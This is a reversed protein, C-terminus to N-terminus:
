HIKLEKRLQAEAELWNERDHGPACGKARWITRAREAIMEHTLQPPAATATATGSSSSSRSATEDYNSTVGSRRSEDRRNFASTGSSRSNEKAM